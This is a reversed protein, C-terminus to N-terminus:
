EELPRAVLSVSLGTQLMLEALSDPENPVGLFDLLWHQGAATSGPTSPTNTSSEYNWDITIASSSSSGEMVDGTVFVTGAISPM